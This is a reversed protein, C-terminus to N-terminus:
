LTNPLDPNAKANLLFEVTELLGGRVAYHLASLGESPILHSSSIEFRNRKNLTDANSHPALVEVLSPEPPDLRALLHFPTDGHAGSTVRANNAM